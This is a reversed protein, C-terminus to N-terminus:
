FNGVKMNESRQIGKETMQSRDDARQEGNVKM